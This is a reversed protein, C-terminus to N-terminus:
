FISELIHYIFTILSATIAGIVIIICIAILLGLFIILIAGATYLINEVINILLRKM